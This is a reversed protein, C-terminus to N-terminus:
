INIYFRNFLTVNFTSNIKIRRDASIHRLYIDVDSFKYNRRVYYKFNNVGFMQMGFENNEFFINRFKLNALLNAKRKGIFRLFPHCRDIQDAAGNRFVSRHLYMTM